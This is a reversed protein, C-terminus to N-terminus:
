FSNKSKRIYNCYYIIKNNWNINQKQHTFKLGLAREMINHIAFIYYNSAIM